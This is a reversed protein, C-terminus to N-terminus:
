AAMPVEAEFAMGVDATARETRLAERAAARARLDQLEVTLTSQSYIHTLILTSNLHSACSKNKSSTRTLYQTRRRCSRARASAQPRTLAVFSRASPLFIGSGFAAHMFVEAMYEHNRKYRTAALTRTSIHELDDAPCPTLCLLVLFPMPSAGPDTDEEIRPPM